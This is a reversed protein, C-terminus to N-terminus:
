GGAQGGGASQARPASVCLNLTRKGHRSFEACCFWWVQRASASVSRLGFPWDRWPPIPRCGALRTFGRDDFLKLSETGHRRPSLHLCYLARGLSLVRVIFRERPIYEATDTEDGPFGCCVKAIITGGLVIQHATAGQTEPWSGTKRIGIVDQSKLHFYQFKLKRGRLM